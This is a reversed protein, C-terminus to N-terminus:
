RLASRGQIRVCDCARFGTGDILRGTVCLEVFTRKAVSDLELVSVLEQIDFKM